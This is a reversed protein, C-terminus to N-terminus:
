QVARWFMWLIATLIVVAAANVLLWDGVRFKKM